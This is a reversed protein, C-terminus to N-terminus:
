FFKLNKTQYFLSEARQIQGQFLNLNREYSDIYGQLTSVMGANTPNIKAQQKLEDINEKEKELEEGEKELIEVNKKDVNSLSQPKSNNEKEQVEKLERRQSTKYLFLDRLTSSKEALIQKIGPAYEAISKELIPLVEEAVIAAEEVAPVIAVAM